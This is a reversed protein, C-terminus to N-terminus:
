IVALFGRLGGLTLCTYIVNAEACVLPQVITTRLAPHCEEHFTEDACDVCNRTIIHRDSSLREFSIIVFPRRLEYSTLHM